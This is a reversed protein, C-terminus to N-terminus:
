HRRLRRQRAQKKRIKLGRAKRKSQWARSHAVRTAHYHNASSHAMKSPTPRHPGDRHPMSPGWGLLARGTSYSLEQVGVMVATGTDYVKTPTGAFRSNDWLDTITQTYSPSSTSNAVEGVVTEHKAELLELAAQNLEELQNSYEDVGGQSLLRRNHAHHTHLETSRRLHSELLLNRQQLGQIQLMLAEDSQQVMPVLFQWAAGTLGLLLVAITMQGWWSETSRKSEPKWGAVNQAWIDSPLFEGQKGKMKMQPTDM